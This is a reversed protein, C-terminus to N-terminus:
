ARGPFQPHERVRRAQELHRLEHAAAIALSIGLSYKLFRFAPSVVKIRALDLGECQETVRTLRSQLHLFTPVIATLPQGHVPRLRLPASFKRRVPPELQRLIAREIRGYLFPGAGTLGRARGHAIAQELLQVHGEGTIVLHGLCEEISWQEAGPRWNFQAESLGSTLAKTQEAVQAFQDGYGKLEAAGM